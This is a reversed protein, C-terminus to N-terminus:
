RAAGTPTARRPAASKSHRAPDSTLARSEKRGNVLVRRAANPKPSSVDHRGGSLEVGLGAAALLFPLLWKLLRVGLRRLAIADASDDVPPAPIDRLAEAKGAERAAEIEEEREREDLREEIADIRDSVAAIAATAARQTEDATDQVRAVARLVETTTAAM